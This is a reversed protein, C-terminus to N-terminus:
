PVGGDLVRDDDGPRKWGVRGGRGPLRVRVLSGGREATHMWAKAQRQSPGIPMESVAAFIEDQTRPSGDVFFTEVFRQANWPQPAEVKDETKERKRRTPGDPRLLRPDLGHAENWVPFDWRLCIPDIPKWSRVAADLVVVGDEEHPRMVLHTDTARSQAGAGAGVDTVAKGSQGGKSAHHILTFGSRLIGAYSDLRNYLRAMAGNDNEDTGDSLFRYFADLIVLKYRGAGIERFYPGLADLSKLQGRINDVSISDAYEDPSIGRAEAVQPIRHASTEAHLENDIILVKGREAPFRGLWPRGTAISLALDVTLWSKGVKPGAIVNMTEGERLLGDLIPPRLKPHAKVLERVTRIRGVGTEPMELTGDAGNM